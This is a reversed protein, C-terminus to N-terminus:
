RGLHARAQGLCAEEVGHLRIQELVWPLEAEGGQHLIAADLRARDPPDLHERLIFVPLTTKGEALDTGPRKGLLREDGVYDLIDDVIQFALGAELGFRSLEKVREPPAEVSLAGATASRRKM